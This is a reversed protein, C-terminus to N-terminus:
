ASKTRRKRREMALALKVRQAELRQRLQHTQAPTACNQLQRELAEVEKILEVEAPVIGANKLISFAMRDDSPTSFYATLDLPQGKGPLNEFDGRAVAEAIRNEAIKEWASSM